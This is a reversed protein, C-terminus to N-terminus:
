FLLPFFHTYSTDHMPDACLPADVRLDGPPFCGAVRAVYEKSLPGTERDAFADSMAMAFAKTKAMVLVGSM